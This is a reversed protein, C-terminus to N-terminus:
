KTTITKQKLAEIGPLTGKALFTLMAGGGTSVFSFKKLLGLKDIASVTDGGGILTRAKSKVLSRIADVTGKEFGKAEFNGLPGSWLIFKAEAILANLVESSNPGIDLIQNGKKRVDVPLVIKENNLYRKINVTKDYVSDGIDFGQALFFCNSLGGGIFINDAIKLFRELVRLKSEAKIGGLILLFPHKSKFSSQLHRIEEMFLLGAYSPLFKPLEVLSANIRHSVGFAENIFIDGLSALKKAFVKDNAEEGKESRLNELIIIESNKMKSIEKKVKAGVVFPVFKSKIHKNFHKAIPALTKGRGKSIHSIIIIKAGAKKLLRITPLTKKIKFDNEVKGSKVPANFDVRLIVKKGRLGTKPITPLKIAKIM